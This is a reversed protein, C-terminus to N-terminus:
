IGPARDERIIVVLIDEFMALCKRNTLILSGSIETSIRLNLSTDKLHSYCLSPCTGSGFLAHM